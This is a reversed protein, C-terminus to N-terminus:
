RAAELRAAASMDELAANSKKQENIQGNFGAQQVQVSAELHRNNEEQLRQNQKRTEVLERRVDRLVQLVDSNGLAPFQPLPATPTSRRTPQGQNLAELMSRVGPQKVVESRVVFEEAHVIGAPEFKGGPGTYGGGSYGGLQYELDAVTAEGRRIMGVWYAVGASDATAGAKAYSDLVKSYAGSSSGGSLSSGSSSGASSGSGSGSHQRISDEIVDLSAGKLYEEAWYQMGELDPERNLLNKYMNSIQSIVAAIDAPQQSSWLDVLSETGGNIAELQDIAGSGNNDLAGFIARLTSEEAIGSFAARFEDYDILGSADFDISNFMPGLSGAIGDALGAIRTNTLEQKSILGDGNVDVRKILQAIDEDSAVPSLAQEVQAATLTKSSLADMKNKLVTTLVADNPMKAIVINELKNIVGDNNLDMGRMMAHLTEDTAIGSLGAKLEAFTLLGDVNNDLDSFSKSLTSTIGLRLDSISANTLEQRSILGDGNKDVADILARLEADTAKGALGAKLEDFSLLGDLSTDLADFDASLGTLLSDFGGNWGSLLAATQDDIIGKFEEALFQEPSLQDPLKELMGTVRDITSVTQEGSASWGKQAEIFRDAYQTISGLAAQDGNLAKAYQEDFAASAAALQDSPTGLGANTGRLNDIWTDIRVGFSALQQQARQWAKAEQEIARIREQQAREAERIADAGGIAAVSAAEASNAINWLAGELTLTGTAVQDFWYELGAADPARGLESQYAQEIAQRVAASTEALAPALAMLDYALQQSAEGNLSLSEVMSRLQEVTTPVQDTVNSLSNYLDLQANSLRETETFAAQYYAQQIAAMNEVGGMSQVLSDTLRLAGDASADFQLNLRESSNDLLQMANAAQVVRGTIQEADLGLGRLSASFDGDLVDVVALTRTALQNAIGAADGANLRVAQAASAMAQTKEAGNDLNAVAGVMANDLATIGDLFAKANDFGDFTEELRATNPDYFGVTGLAGRSYVGEGYNEFLGHRAPDVDQGVTALEFKPATKSGGIGIADLASGIVTGGIPMFQSLFQSSRGDTRIGLADYAGVNKLLSDGASAAAYIALAPGAAAMMSSLGGAGSAVGGTLANGYLGGQAAGTAASSYLGGAAASGTLANSYLGGSAASGGGLWGSVTDWGNKLSGLSSLNFGGGGGPMGTTDLGMMGAVQFTLKQTTLMHAIEALTQQFGRKVTDLASESGDILGLWLGQGSDDVRRLTNDAVTEWSLFSNAIRQSADESATATNEAERQAAQFSEQLMGMAQMYQVANIRGTALALNLTGLDQAYQRAERRNPTIRDLLSEYSDALSYTKDAANEISSSLTRNFEEARRTEENAEEIREAYVVFANANQEIRSATESRAVNIKDNLEAIREQAEAVAQMGSIEAGLEGGGFGLAGSGRNESRLKALEERATAAKITATDLEANLSSLSGSLDDQSMDKMEDRLARIQDETLGARQGTLNLEDRFVYLLGAAGVLLGLPGGVLTLATNLGRTATGMARAAVTSRGLSATYTNNAATLAATNAALQKRLSARQVASRSSALQASLSGQVSKLFAIEAATATATARADAISAKTKNALSLTGAAMGAVFRGTYIGAAIIAADSLLDVGRALNEVNNTLFDVAEASGDLAANFLDTAGAEGIAAYLTDVRDGLNNLKGGLTDVQAIAAGSFTTNGINELYRVIEESSNKITTTVGQFTFAVEDGQASSKINFEKLREYEGTAADAVAEVMQMLDKGTAAATNAFARMSEETPDLGMGKMRIFAQVSQELEFPTTKAFERMQEWAENAGEISGTMTVLSARMKEIGAVTNFVDRGFSSVGMAAFWGGAAMAVTRISSISGTLTQMSRETRDSAREVGHLRGELRDLERQAQRSDIVLELRSSSM